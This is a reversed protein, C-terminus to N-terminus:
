TTTANNSTDVEDDDLGQIIMRKRSINNASSNLAM